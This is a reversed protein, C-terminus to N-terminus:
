ASGRDNSLSSPNREQSTLRGASQENHQPNPFITECSLVTAPQRFHPRKGQTGVVAVRRVSYSTLYGPASVARLHKVRARTAGVAPAAIEGGGRVAYPRNLRVTGRLIVPTAQIWTPFVAAVV